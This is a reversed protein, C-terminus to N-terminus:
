VASIGGTVSVTQGTVKASAPSALFAILAAVDEADAVGLGALSEAKAFLRRSFEDHQLREYLPTGRVISPTVCNARVGDRRGEIALGRCFMAIAAMAAGIVSEGPTAVKGADSAVCVIAGSRQPRMVEYAARAPLLVCAAVGNLARMVDATPITSLPRPLVDGGACSVLADLGGFRASAEQVMAEAQAPDSADGTVLVIDCEPHRAALADRAAEGRERSRGGLAIGRAGCRAMRDAAALGIGATGGVILIRSPAADM